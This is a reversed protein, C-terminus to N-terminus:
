LQPRWGHTGFGLSGSINGSTDVLTTKIDPVAQTQITEDWNTYSTFNLINSEVEYNENGAYRCTGGTGQLTNRYIYTNYTLGENAASRAFAIVIGDSNFNNWCMEHDHPIDIAETGYGLGLMQGSLGVHGYNNRVTVNAVTGKCNIATSSSSNAASNSEILVNSARFITYFTGNSAGALEGNRIQECHNESILYYNKLTVTSSVFIPGTNDNGAYGWDMDTFNNRFFTARDSAGALWWYHANGVDNRANRFTIGAIYFDDMSSNDYFKANVCDFIPNEDPFGILSPTKYLREFEVNAPNAASNGTPSYVGGRWVSIKNHYTNDTASDKWWDVFNELPQSITGVKTGAYGAQIFVFMSDDITFSQPIDVTAGGSDTVRVTYSYSNGHTLTSPNIKLVGYDDDGYYQGIEAVGTEDSIIEYKFPWAGGQVGIPIEYRFGSHAWKQRAHAQTEGAPRPFIVNMPMKAPTYYGARPPWQAGSKFGGTTRSARAAISVNTAM